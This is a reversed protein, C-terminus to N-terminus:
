FSPFSQMSASSQFRANSEILTPANITASRRNPTGGFHQADNLVDVGDSQELHHVLVLRRRLQLMVGRTGFAVRSHLDCEITTMVVAALTERM